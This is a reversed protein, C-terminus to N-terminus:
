EGQSGRGDPQRQVLDPVRPLRGPATGAVYADPNDMRLPGKNNTTVGPRSVMGLDALAPQPRPMFEPRGWPADGGTPLPQGGSMLDSLLGSSARGLYLPQTMATLSEPQGGLTTAAQAAMGLLPAGHGPAFTRGGPGQILPKTFGAFYSGPQAEPATAAPDSASPAGNPGHDAAAQPDSPAAPPPPPSVPAPNALAPNSAVQM